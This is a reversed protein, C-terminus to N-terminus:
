GFAIKAILISPINYLSAFCKLNQAQNQAQLKVFIKRRFFYFLEPSFNPMLIDLCKSIKSFSSVTDEHAILICITKETYQKLQLFMIELSINQFKIDSFYFLFM